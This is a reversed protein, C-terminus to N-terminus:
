GVVCFFLLQFNRYRKFAMAQGRCQFSSEYCGFGNSVSSHHKFAKINNLLDDCARPVDVYRQHMSTAGPDMNMSLVEQFPEPDILLSRLLLSTRAVAM